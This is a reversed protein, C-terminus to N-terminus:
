AKELKFDHFLKVRLNYTNAHKAHGLWSNISAQIKELDIKGDTYNRAFARLKRKMRTISSKRLLRHTRWIRYGLFDIGQAESFVATHHNLRLHLYEDLFIGIMYRAQNVESKNSGLLIFDDMYRLYFKWCLEQKIFRDLENLYLNAFLQSTLNGIPLGRGTEGNWSHIIDEILYLTRPCAFRKHLISLLIKHDISPFYQSIDAKLIYTAQWKRHARRLFDSLRNAGTHTGKGVRCAYSDYIFERECSPEIAAVLAHQVVRDRFPLAAVQRLKPERIYFTRYNGTRYASIELENLLDLLEQELNAGFHLTETEFRKGRRAKLYAAHLSDFNAILSWLAANSKV